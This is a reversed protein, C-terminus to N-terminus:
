KEPAESLKRKFEEDVKMKSEDMLEKVKKNWSKYESRGRVSRYKKCGLHAHGKRCEHSVATGLADVNEEM